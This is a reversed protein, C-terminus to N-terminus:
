QVEGVYLWALGWLLPSSELHKLGAPELYQEEFLDGAPFAASTRPLYEYAARNGTMLGGITPMVVRSYWRFTMGFLGAPQGFELVLVKGGPRTVRAM